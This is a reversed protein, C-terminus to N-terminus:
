ISPKLPSFIIVLIQMCAHGCPRVCSVKSQQKDKREQEVAVNNIDKALDEINDHDKRKKKEKKGRKKM